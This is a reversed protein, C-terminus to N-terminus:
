SVYYLDENVNDNDEWDDHQAVLGSQWQYRSRGDVSGVDGYGPSARTGM